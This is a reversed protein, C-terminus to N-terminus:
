PSASPTSQSTSSDDEWDDPRPENEMAENLRHQNEQDAKNWEDLIEALRPSSEVHTGNLYTGIVVLAANAMWVLHNKFVVPRIDVPRQRKLNGLLELLLTRHQGEPLIRSYSRIRDVVPMEDKLWEGDAGREELNARHSLLLDMIILGAERAEVAKREREALDQADKGQLRLLEVSKRSQYVAVLVTFFGGVVAGLLASMFEKNDWLDKLVDM